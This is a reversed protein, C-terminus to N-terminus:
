RRPSVKRLIGSFTAVSVDGQVVMGRTFIMRGTERTVEVVADLPRDPHGPGLFQTSLEITLGRGIGEGILVDAGGFMAVDILSLITGGHIVDQANLHREQPLMRIRAKGDGGLRVLLLGLVAQNFREEGPM